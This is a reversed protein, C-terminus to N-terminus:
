RLSQIKQCDLNSIFTRDWVAGQHQTACLDPSSRDLSQQYTYSLLDLNAYQIRFLCAFICTCLIVYLSRFSKLYPESLLAFILFPQQFMLYHDAPWRLGCFVAALISCFFIFASTKQISVNANYRGAIKGLFVGLICGSITIFKGGIGYEVSFVYFSTLILSFALALKLLNNSNIRSSIICSFYSVILAGMFSSFINAWFTRKFLYYISDSSLQLSCGLSSCSSGSVAHVSSRSFDLFTVVWAPSLIYFAYLFFSTILGAFLACSLNIRWNVSRLQCTWLVPFLLVVLTITAVALGQKGLNLDLMKIMLLIIASAILTFIGSRVLANIRNKGKYVTGLLLTGLCFLFFLPIIQVKAMVSLGSLIIYLFVDAYFKSPKRTAEQNAQTTKRLQCISIQSVALIFLLSSYAENRLQAIEVSIGSTVAILCGSILATYLGTFSSIKKIAITILLVYLLYNTLKSFQFIRQLEAESPALYQAEGFVDSLHRIGTIFAVVLSQIVGPHESYLPPKQQFLRWGDRLFVLDQDPNGFWSFDWSGVLTPLSLFGILIFVLTFSLFEGSVKGNM